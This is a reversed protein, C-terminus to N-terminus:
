LLVGTFMEELSARIRRLSAINEKCAKIFDDSSDPARAPAEQERACQTALETIEASIADILHQQSETM